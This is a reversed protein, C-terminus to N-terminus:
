PELYLDMNNLFLLNLFIYPSIKEYVLIDMLIAFVVAKAINRYNNIDPSDGGKSLSDNHLQMEM